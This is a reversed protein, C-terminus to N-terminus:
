CIPLRRQRLYDYYARAGDPYSVVPSWGTAEKLKRNSYRNGKWYSGCKLRNFAPPLQGESWRSYMEWLACFAYFVSYPVPLYKRRAVHKRYGAMFQRSTPLQDDIVNFVQGDIGPTIGALAIADACNSVHTFPIRNSGGLHLFIGFTDIGVRSTVDPKGPGYVAGPRLIVYPLNRRSAYELVLEDQKLKAYVYPEERELVSPELACTEDLLAHRKLHRNSYVSLSSVNVFRRLVNAQTVEDLLNRTTVVTNLFSGPFSKDMGAALHFVLSVDRGAEKADARSLLNGEILKVRLHPFRGLVQLLGETRNTASRVLCRLNRFGLRLLVEVLRTGIFGNAGTILIPDDFDVISKDLRLNNMIRLPAPLEM